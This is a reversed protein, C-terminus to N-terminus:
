RPRCRTATDSPRRINIIVCGGAGKWTVFVTRARTTGDSGPEDVSGTWATDDKYRPGSGRRARATEPM